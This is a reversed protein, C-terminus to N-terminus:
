QEGRDKAKGKRLHPIYDIEDDLFMDVMDKIFDTIKGDLDLLKAKLQKYKKKDINVNLRALEDTEATSM